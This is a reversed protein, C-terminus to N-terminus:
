QDLEYQWPDNFVECGELAARQALSAQPHTWHCTLHLSIKRLDATAANLTETSASREVLREPTLNRVINSTIRGKDDTLVSGQHIIGDRLTNIKRIQKFVYELDKKNEEGPDQIQIIREISSMAERVRTGPFLARAMNNPVTAYFALTNFMVAELMAFEQAFRGLAEFYVPDPTLDIRTRAV